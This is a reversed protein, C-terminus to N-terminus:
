KKLRVSDPKIISTANIVSDTISSQSFVFLPYVFVFYTIFAKKAM